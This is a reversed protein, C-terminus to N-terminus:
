LAFMSSRCRLTLSDWHVLLRKAVRDILLRLHTLQPWTIKTGRDLLSHNLAPHNGRPCFSAEEIRTFRVREFM